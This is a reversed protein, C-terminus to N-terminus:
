PERERRDRVLEELYETQAVILEALFGVLFLLLGAAILALAVIFIPRKQTQELVYLLVLYLGTGFGLVELGLGISGFFLMPRRRFTLLFKVVLLDLFARPIRSIGFKSRGWRRPQYPTPVEAVRFGEAAAIMLIFRHWDSRLHLSKVVERRFAKVWNMDHAQVGFLWRSLLNYVRSALVKRGRRGQRWGAVVDYGEALKGLLLPVDIEPDSELDAPLFVIVEGRVHRLGTRIAETLGRNRRHRVLRLWPYRERSQSLVDWTGDTSGDDVIVVEAPGELCCLTRELKALLPQINGQENYAPILISILPSCTGDPEEM